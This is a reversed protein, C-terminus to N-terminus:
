QSQSYYQLAYFLFSNIFALALSGLLASFIGKRLRFGTILWAALGFIGANVLIAVVTINLMNLPLGLYNFAPVQLANMIGFAAASAMAKEFSDIEVGLFPLKSIIFLSVSTVLWYVVIQVLPALDM